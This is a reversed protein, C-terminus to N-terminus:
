NNLIYRRIFVIIFIFVSYWIFFPIIFGIWGFALLIAMILLQFGLGYFSVVTMFWPPFVKSTYALPDLYHVAKDFLYYLVNFINFLITVTTQNEDPFAEPVKKEFIKSTIDSGTSFTRIIVYYYNYLSCQLQMCAYSMLMMIFSGGSVFWITFLFLFNLISDFISDLYRGTYSPKKKIRALEGDVADIISKLILLCGSAIFYGQFICFVAGLGCLGFILTVHVPTVKTLSLHNAWNIAIYRGYDSVDIFKNEIALKTV